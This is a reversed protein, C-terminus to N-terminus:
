FKQMQKLCEKSKYEAAMAAKLFSQSLLSNVLSTFVVRVHAKSWAELRRIMHTRFPTERATVLYTLKTVVATM